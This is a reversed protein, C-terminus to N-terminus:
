PPGVAAHFLWALIRYANVVATIICIIIFPVCAIIAYLVGRPSWLSAALTINITLKKMPAAYRPRSVFLSGLGIIVLPDKGGRSSDTLLRAVNSNVNAHTVGCISVDPIQPIQSLVSPLGWLAQNNRGPVISLKQIPHIHYILPILFYAEEPLSISGLNIQSPSINCRLLLPSIILQRFSRSVQLLLWLDTSDLFSLIINQLEPPLNLM